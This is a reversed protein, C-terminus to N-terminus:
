SDKLTVYFYLTQIKPRETDDAQGGNIFRCLKSITTGSYLKTINITPSKPLRDEM